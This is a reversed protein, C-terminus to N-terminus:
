PNREVGHEEWKKEFKGGFFYVPVVLKVPFQFFFCPSEVRRSPHEEDCGDAIGVRFGLRVKPSAVLAILKWSMSPLRNRRLCREIIKQPHAFTGFIHVLFPNFFFFCSKKRWKKKPPSSSSSINNHITNKYLSIHPPNLLIGYM